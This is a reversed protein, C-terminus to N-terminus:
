YNVTIFTIIIDKGLEYISICDLCSSQRLLMSKVGVVGCNVSRLSEIADLVFQVM